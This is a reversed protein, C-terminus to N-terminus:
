QGLTVPVHKIDIYLCLRQRNETGDETVVQVLWFRGRPGGSDDIDILRKIWVKMSCILFNFKRM